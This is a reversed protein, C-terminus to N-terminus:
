QTLCHSKPRQGQISLREFLWISQALASGISRALEGIATKPFCRKVRNARVITNWLEGRQRRNFPKFHISYSFRRLVSDEIEYIRNTIWIVRAGPEELIKNLWGKDQTEGRFFWAQETNLMNDAEDVIVLSEKGSNTLNLCGWLAARRTASSNKEDGRALEYAPIGIEHAINAAFTSKGTGPAGYLLIHTSTKTKNKLM